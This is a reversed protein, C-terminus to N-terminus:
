QEREGPRFTTWEEPVDPLGTVRLERGPDTSRMEVLGSVLPRFREVPEETAASDVAIVGFGDRKRITKTIVELLRYTSQVDTQSVISSLSGIAVRAPVYDERALRDYQQSFAMAIGTLDRMSEVSSTAVDTSTERATGGCDIMAIRDDYEDDVYAELATLVASPPETTSVYILGEEAPYGRALLSLVLDRKGTGPPGAVLLSTGGPVTEVPLASGVEIM